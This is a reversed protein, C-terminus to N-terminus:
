QRPISEKGGSSWIGLDRLWHNFRPAPVWIRRTTKGPGTSDLFWVSCFYSITKLRQLVISMCLVVLTKRQSQHCCIELWLIRLSYIPDLIQWSAFGFFLTTTVSTIRLSCWYCIINYKLTHSKSFSFHFDLLSRVHIVFNYAVLYTIGSQSALFIDCYIGWVAKERCYFVCHSTGHRPSFSHWPESSYSNYLSVM